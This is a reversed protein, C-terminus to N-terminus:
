EMLHLEWTQPSGDSNLRRVIWLLKGMELIKQKWQENYVRKYENIVADLQEEPSKGNLINFAAVPGVGGCGGINDVNDGMLLQAYFFALGTGKLKPKQSTRDLKLYGEKTILEPGFSPQRGLEWSYSWGPIMRLDKDRSCIICDGSDQALADIAIADDAELYNCVRAGLVGKLYASLNDFHWPKKGVRTGKYPKTQAIDYRFTRGETIYLTYEDAQCVRKIAELRDVLLEEVYDFPPIDDGNTRAKWGTEAAFGLEYRIVDGDIICRM